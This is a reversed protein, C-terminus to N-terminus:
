AVTPRDVVIGNPHVAMVHKECLSDASRDGNKAANDVVDQRTSNQATSPISMNLVVQEEESHASM